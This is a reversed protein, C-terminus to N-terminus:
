ISLVSEELSLLGASNMAVVRFQHFIRRGDADEKALSGDALDSDALPQYFIAPNGQQEAIKRWHGGATRKYLYYAGNYCTPEWKLTVHHLAPPSGAPGDATFFLRPPPPNVNDVLSAMVLNSAKSPAMELQGRENKIERLAVVRYYVPDGYPIRPLDEFTDMLDAGAPATKALAMTRVSLADDPDTARYLQLQRINESPLYGNLEFRVGDVDGTLRNTISVTVRAIGPAEAPAANVLKVPGVIPSMASTTLQNSLERSGYFYINRAAGDLSYDTFRVFRRNAPDGYGANGRVLVQDTASREYRVAMPWADYRPDTPPIRNGDADRVKPPRGSTQLSNDRLQRYVPPTESLPVFAGDIAEKVIAAWSRGTGPVIAGSGPPVTNGPGFPRVATALRPDPVRYAPNDPPPFRFGNEVYQKLQGDSETVLNVLDNWRNGDFAEDEPTLAALAAYIERVTAPAYLQDLVRRENARYFILSFPQGVQTEFTYTAKGYFDPRTAYLAGLPIGPPVPERIELALLVVPAALSSALGPMTSDIARVTMYTQKTGEDLDPLMAAEGFNHGGALDARLYVRYAPHFNAFAVAGTAVPDIGPVPTFQGGTLLFIGAADRALAFTPDFAVLRLVPGANDISWVALERIEGSGGRLRLTGHHYSVEPDPHPALAAAAFTVLYVGTPVQTAPPGGPPIFAGLGPDPDFIHAVTAAGTLGGVVRTTLTGDAHTETETHAPLFNTLAVEKALRTDWAAPSELNEVMVFPLDAAPHLFTETTCFINDNLSDASGTQRIARVRIQPNNGATLVADVVFTEGGAVLRAGAFRFLDAAEVRPQVTTPQSSQLYSGTTLLATNTTNDPTVALIKGKVVGPAAVRFFFQAKDAFQYASIQSQNWDFSARVLTRDPGALGDLMQQEAETSLLPSPERQVLYVQLRSPPALTSRRDFHTEDTEVQNSPLSVRAFWNISYLAYHHIGPQTEGHTYVPNEGKDPIPRVEPLGAPDLWDEDHSIEPRAFSGSGANGEGYEVGFLIPQTTEYLDFLKPDSFFPAFPLEYRFPARHLNVFRLDAFPVYGESDTLPTTGGCTGADLGYVVPLLEPAPPLRYDKPRIPPTMYLHSVTAAPESELQAETTYQMLYIAEFDKPLSEDPDIAGRGLMRAVHYDLGAFGLLALYSVETAADHPQEDQNPLTVNALPDVRSRDLYTEVAAQLGDNPLLWRDRYNKLNVRFESGTPENFKPWRRDVVFLGPDELRRLVEADADDRGDDLAFRGVSEWGGRAAIGTLYDQYPILYLNSPVLGGSSAFRLYEWNEGKLGTAGAPGLERRSSVHRTSPDLNDPLSVTELRFSGTSGTFKLDLYFFLKGSTHLEVPASFQSLFLRPQSHPDVTQRVQNYLSINAFRLTLDTLGGASSPLDAYVWARIAGFEILQTPPQAFDLTIGFESAFPTKYIRVYDDPRNFGINTPYRGGPAALDGKPLHQEGLRRMLEWRLHFGKPTDDGGDSGAAQLYIYPSQFKPNREIDPPEAGGCVDRVGPRVVIIGASREKVTVALPDAKAGWDKLTFKHTKPLPLPLELTACSGLGGDTSAAFAAASRDYGCILLEEQDGEAATQLDFFQPDVQDDFRRLWKLGLQGNVKAVFNFRPSSPMEALLYFDGGIGHRLAKLGREGGQKFDFVHVNVTGDSLRFRTLFSNQDAGHEGALVFFGADLPLLAAAFQQDADGFTKSQLLVLDADFVAFFNDTKGAPGTHGYVICGDQYPILGAVPSEHKVEIFVSAKVHGDGDIAIVEISPAIAAEGRSVFAYREKGTRVLDIAAFTRQSSYTRTWIPQGAKSVRMVLPNQDLEGFLLFDGNDCRVSRHFYADNGLPYRLLELPAGGSDLLALLPDKGIAGAFYNPASGFRLSGAPISRFVPTEDAKFLKIYASM